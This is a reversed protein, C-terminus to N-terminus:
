AAATEYRGRMSSAITAAPPRLVWSSSTSAASRAATAASSASAGIMLMGYGIRSTIPPSMSASTGPTGSSSSGGSSTRTANRGGSRNEAATNLEACSSRRFMRGIVSSANPSM